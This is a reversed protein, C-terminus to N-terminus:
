RVSTRNGVKDYGYRVTTTPVGPSATTVQTVRNLPDYVYTLTADPDAATTLRSGADYTYTTVEESTTKSTLRNLVSWSPTLVLIGSLLSALLPATM